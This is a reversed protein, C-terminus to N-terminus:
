YGHLLPTCVIISKCVDRNTLGGGESSLSNNEIYKYFLHVILQRHSWHNRSLARADAYRKLALINLSRLAFFLAQETNLQVHRGYGLAETM